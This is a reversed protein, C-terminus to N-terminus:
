NFVGDPLGADRLCNALLRVTWPTDTAPKVVVTNGAVLAAGVPGGTLAGPFNFPSIVLWVGYPKLKSYNRSVYGKVRDQRMEIQYGDNREMQDCAYRILAATEAIDGMAEMRNKGVELALAAGMEYLRDDILDAAKRLISVRETWAKRSWHLFARRAAFVAANAHQINGKQFVGLLMSRDIPSYDEFKEDAFQDKGGIYMGYEKGLSSKIHKLASEFQIHIEEPPDYMTAYTLQYKGDQM